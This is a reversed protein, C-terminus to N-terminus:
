EIKINAIYKGYHEKEDYSSEYKCEEGIQIKDEDKEIKSVIEKLGGVLSPYSTDTIQITLIIQKLMAM